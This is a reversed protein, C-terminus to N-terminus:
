SVASLEETVGTVHTGFKKMARLIVEQIKMVAGRRVRTLFAHRGVAPLEVELRAVFASMESALEVSM